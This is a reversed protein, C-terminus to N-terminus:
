PSRLTNVCVNLCAPQNRWRAESVAFYVGQLRLANLLLRHSGPRLAAKVASLLTFASAPTQQDVRVEDMWASVWGGIRDVSKGTRGIIWGVLQGDM